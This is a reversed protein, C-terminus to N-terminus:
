ICSTRPRPMVRIVSAAEEPHPVHLMGGDMPTSYAVKMRVEEGEPTRGTVFEQPQSGEVLLGARRHEAWPSVTQKEFSAAGANSGGTEFRRDM